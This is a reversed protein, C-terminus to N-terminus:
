KLRNILDVDAESTSEMERGWYGLVFNDEEKQYEEGKESRESESNHFEDHGFM